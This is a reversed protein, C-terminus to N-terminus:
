RTRPLSYDAKKKSQKQQLINMLSRIAISMIFPIFAIELQQPILCWALLFALLAVFNIFHYYYVYKSLSKAFFLFAVILQLPNLWIINWNSSTCPHISFFMLFFIICGALGATMFLLTDFIKSITFIRKQYSVFSIILTLVLLLLGAYLPTVPLNESFPKPKLIIDTSLLLKRSVDSIDNKIIAGEYARMLYEPLFDKQRDTITKDADAGIVLDIGFRMWPHSSSCEHVLDRYTQKKDTAAYILKGKIYKEIIDRPRTSCNDYFYNYRYVRNEPLTNIVLADFIDQKEEQTFNFIQEVVGIGGNMRNELYDQYDSAIVMYDTEGKIFLLIFNDKRMNFIGFDFVSDLKRAPDKVRVSTHGFITYIAEDWPANTLLSLEASDSLIIPSEVNQSHTAQCFSVVLIFLFFINKKM